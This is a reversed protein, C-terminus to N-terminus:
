RKRALITAGYLVSKVQDKYYINIKQTKIIEFGNGIISCLHKELDWRNLMFVRGGFIIRWIINNILYHGVPNKTIGHSHLEIDHFTCAKQNLHSYIGKYILNPDYVHEMVARSYIIDLSLHDALPWNYIIKIRKSDIFGHLIDNRIESVVNEQLFIPNILDEPYNYSNISINLVKFTNHLSSKNKFLLVLEDFLKLNQDRDFIEEIDLAYYVESGSLLACLGVGFSGGNGIEGIRKFEPKIGNEACYVLISLWLIYCFEADSASHTSKKRLKRILLPVGPIFTLLGKIISKLLNTDVM